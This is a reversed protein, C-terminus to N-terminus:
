NGNGSKAGLGSGVASLFVKMAADFSFCRNGVELARWALQERRGGNMLNALAKELGARGEQTVVEAVDRHEGAWRVASCYDPGYILLPLGSATYEALKSPFSIQMNVKEATEFTMPLFLVQARERIQELMDYVFGFAIVNSRALGNAAAQTKDPGFILLQGGFPEM